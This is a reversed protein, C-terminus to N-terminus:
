PAEKTATLVGANDVRVRWTAGDPSRLPLYDRGELIPRGDASIARDVRRARQLASAPELTAALRITATELDDNTSM